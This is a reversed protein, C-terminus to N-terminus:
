GVDIHMHVFVRSSYQLFQGLIKRGSSKAQPLGFRAGLREDWPM